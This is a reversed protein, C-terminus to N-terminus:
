TISSPARLAFVLQRAAKQRYEGVAAVQHGVRVQVGRQPGPTRLFAFAHSAIAVQQQLVRRKAM